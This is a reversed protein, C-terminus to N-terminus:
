ASEGNISRARASRVDGDELDATSDLARDAPLPDPFDVSQGQNGLRVAEQLDALTIHDAGRSLLDHIYKMDITLFGGPRVKSLVFVTFDGAEQGIKRLGTSITEAAKTDDIIGNTMNARNLVSRRATASVGQIEEDSTRGTCIILVILLFIIISSKQNM